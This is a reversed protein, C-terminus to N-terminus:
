LTRGRLRARPESRDTTWEFVTRTYYDLGRVLRPEVHYEIGARSLYACLAEFHSRSEADLADLLAPAGAILPQM